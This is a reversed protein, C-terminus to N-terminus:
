GGTGAPDTEYCGVDVAAGRVRPAGALDTEDNDVILSSEGDDILPSGPGPSLDGLLPNRFLPDDGACEYGNPVGNGQTVPGAICSAETTVDFPYEWHVRTMSQVWQRDTVGYFHNNVFTPSVIPDATHNDNGRDNNTAPVRVTATSGSLDFVNNAILPANSRGVWLSTAPDTAETLVCTNGIVQIGVGGVDFCAEFAGAVLTNKVVADHSLKMAEDNGGGGATTVVVLRELRAREASAPHRSTNSSRAVWIARDCDANCNIRLNSVVVDDGANIQLLGYLMSRDNSLVVDNPSQGAAGRLTLPWNITFEGGEFVATQGDAYLEIVSGPRARRLAGELGAGGTFHCGAGGCDAGPRGGRLTLPLPAETGGGVLAGLNDSDGRPTGELDVDGAEPVPAAAGLALSTSALVISSEDVFGSEDTFQTNV